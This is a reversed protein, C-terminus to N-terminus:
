LGGGLEGNIGLPIAQGNILVRYDDGACFAGYWEMIAACAAREVHFGISHTESEPNEFRLEVIM